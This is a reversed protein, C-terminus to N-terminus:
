SVQSIDTIATKNFTELTLTVWHCDTDASCAWRNHQLSVSQLVVPMSGPVPELSTLRNHHLSLVRLRALRTFLDPPISTLLNHDLSLVELGELGLM